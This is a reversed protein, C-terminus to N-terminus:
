CSVMWGKYGANLLNKVTPKSLSKDRGSIFFVAANNQKAINFLKLTSPFVPQAELEVAAGRSLDAFCFLYGSVCYGILTSPMTSILSQLPPLTPPM